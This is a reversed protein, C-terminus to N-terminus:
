ELVILLALNRRAEASWSQAPTSPFVATRAERALAARQTAPLPELALVVAGSWAERWLGKPQLEAARAAGRTLQEVVTARDDTSPNGEALKKAAGAVDAVLAAPARPEHLLIESRALFAQRNLDTAEASRAPDAACLDALRRQVAALDLKWWVAANPNRVETEVRERWRELIREREGVPRHKERLQTDETLIGIWLSHSGWRAPDIRVNEFAAELAQTWNDLAAPINGAATLNLALQGFANARHDHISPVATPSVFRLRDVTEELRKRSQETNGQEQELRGLAFAALGWDARWRQNAPDLQALAEAIQHAQSLLQGV